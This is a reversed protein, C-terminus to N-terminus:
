ETEGRLAEALERVTKKSFNQPYGFVVHEIGMKSIESLFASLKNFSKFISFMEVTEAPIDSIISEIISGAKLKERAEIIKQHLGLKELIIKPAGMAVVTSAVRLLNYVEKNIEKYIYSPAYVGLQFAENRVVGVKSLAWKILDGSAYNLLVGDFFGAIGLMKPGQAGLWIKAKVKNELLKKAIRKRADSLYNVIGRPDFLSVGVRELQDRDGPGICLEFRDGYAETLTLLGNAIQDPTHLFPSLLGVGVRLKKTKESIAAAAAFAYRQAPVDSVWVYDLGLREAEVSKEVMEQTTENANVGLGYKLDSEEM